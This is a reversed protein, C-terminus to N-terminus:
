TPFAALHWYFDIVADEFILSSRRVDASLGRAILSVARLNRWRHEFNTFSRLLKSIVNRQVDLNGSSFHMEEEYSCSRRWINNFAYFVEDEQSAAAKRRRLLRVGPCRTDLEQNTSFPVRKTNVIQFHLVNRFPSPALSVSILASAAGYGQEMKSQAFSAGNPCNGQWSDRFYVM